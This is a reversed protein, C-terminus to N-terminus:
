LAVGPVLVVDGVNNSHAPVLRRWSWWQAVYPGGDVTGEFRGAVAAPRGVVVGGGEFGSRHLCLVRCSAVVPVLNALVAMFEVVSSAMGGCTPSYHSV